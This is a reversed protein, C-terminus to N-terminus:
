LAEAGAEEVAAAAERTGTAGEPVVRDLLAGCVGVLAFFAGYVPPGTFAVTGISQVLMAVLWGVVTLGVWRSLPQPGDRSLRRGARYIAVLGLAFAVAGFFGTEGLIAPWETDTLFRGDVTGRGLGWIYPYGRAVYEPSYNEAATASGFRGFGAGGPFHAAAVSFSDTTLVTRAEPTGKGLYDQYTAQVVEVAPPALVVVAIPICAVLAVLVRVSRQMGQVWLWGVSLGAAATRRGTLVACGATALLLALTFGSKRVSLRWTAIAIASLSMFQGLDIPHTFPGILSPLVSRPEVADLDSALMANWAGPMAMNAAAAVLSLLIVVATVRAACRLHRETWEVQAVAWALLLGKVMLFAGSLFIVLPVQVVLSSLLGITLFAVFWWQGPFTRLPKHDLLRRLPMTVVCLVVFTEDLYSVAPVPVLHELPRVFLIALVAFAATLRPAFLASALASAAAVGLVTPLPAVMAAAGVLLAVLPGGVAMRRPGPLARARRAAVPVSAAAERRGVVTV